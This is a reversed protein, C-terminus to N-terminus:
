SSDKNGDRIAKNKIDMEKKLEALVDGEPLEGKNDWPFPLLKDPRKASRANQNAIATYIIRAQEWGEKLKREENDSFGGVANM